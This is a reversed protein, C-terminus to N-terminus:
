FDDLSDPAYAFVPYAKKFYTQGLSNKDSVLLTYNPEVQKVRFDDLM